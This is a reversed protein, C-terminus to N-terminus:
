VEWNAAKARSCELFKKRLELTEKSGDKMDVEEKNVM